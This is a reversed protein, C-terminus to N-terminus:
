WSPLVVGAENLRIWLALALGNAVAIGVLAVCWCASLKLSSLLASIAAITSTYGWIYTFRLREPDIAQSQASFAIALSKSLLSLAHFGSVIAIAAVIPARMRTTAFHRALWRLALRIRDALEYRELRQM